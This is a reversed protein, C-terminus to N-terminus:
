QTIQPDATQYNPSNYRVGRNPGRPGQAYNGQGQACYRYSGYNPCNAYIRSRGQWGTQSVQDRWRPGNGWCQALGVDASVLIGALAMAICYALWHRNKM